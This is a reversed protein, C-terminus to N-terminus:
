VSGGQLWAPFQVPLIRLVFYSRRLDGATLKTIQGNSQYLPDPVRINILASVVLRSSYRLQDGKTFVRIIM